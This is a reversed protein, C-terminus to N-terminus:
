SHQHSKSDHNRPTLQNLPDAADSVPTRKRRDPTEGNEKAIPALVCDEGSSAYGRATTPAGRMRSVLLRGQFAGAVLLMLALV